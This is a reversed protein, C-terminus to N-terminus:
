QILVSGCQPRLERHGIVIGSGAVLLVQVSLFQVVIEASVRCGFSRLLIHM